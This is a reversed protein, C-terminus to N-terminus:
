AQGGSFDTDLFRPASRDTDRLRHASHDLDLLRHASRDLDRLIRSVADPGLWEMPVVGAAIATRLWESPASRTGTAAALIEAAATHVALLSGLAELSVPTTGRLTAVTESPVLLGTLASGLAEVPAAQGRTIRALIEMAVPVAQSVPVLTASSGAEFPVPLGRALRLLVESPIAHAAIAGALVEAFVGTSGAASALWEHAGVRSSLLRALSEVASVRSALASALAEHSVGRASRPESLAEAPVAVARSLSALYEASSAFSPAAQALSEWQVLTVRDTRALSEASSVAARVPSGLVESAAPIAQSVPTGGTAAAFTWGLATVTLDGGTGATLQWGLDQGATYAEGATLTIAGTQGAPIAVSAVSVQDVLLHLAGDTTMANASVWLRLSAVVGDTQARGRYASSDLIHSNNDFLTLGPPGFRSAGAPVTVGVAWSSPACVASTADHTIQSRWTRYTSGGSPISWELDGLDGDQVTDTNTADEFLGTSSAPITVLGNGNAGNIRVRATGPSSRNNTRMDVQLRRLTGATLPNQVPAESAGETGLSGGISTYRTGVAFSTGDNHLTIGTAGTPTWRYSVNAIRLNTGGTGAVLQGRYEQGATITDSNTADEFYGTTNAPVTISINGATGNIATTFTSATTRDNIPVHLGFRDAVGDAHIRSPRGAQTPMTGTGMGLGWWQTGALAVFDFNGCFITHSAM